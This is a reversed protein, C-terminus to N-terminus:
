ESVKYTHTHFLGHVPPIQSSLTPLGRRTGAAPSTRRCTVCACVCVCVCGLSLFLIQQEKESQESPGRLSGFAAASNSKVFTSSLSTRSYVDEGGFYVLAKNESAACSVETSSESKRDIEDLSSSCSHLGSSASFAAVFIGVM